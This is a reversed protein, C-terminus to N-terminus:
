ARAAVYGRGSAHQRGGARTCLWQQRGYGRRDYHAACRLHPLSGYRGGFLRGADASYPGKSYDIREVLEPILFNLDLYGQGHGHSRMNIPVGDVYGALDTGHDLNFGRLFYQNAKGTGSHQTAILGPVNEALEGVRAVPRNSFDEYGVTGQSASTAIGIQPLARGYVVIDAENMADRHEDVSAESQQADVENALLMATACVACIVFSLRLPARPSTEKRGCAWQESPHLSSRLTSPNPDVM